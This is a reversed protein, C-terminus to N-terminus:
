FKSQLYKGVLIAAPYIVEEENQAHLKLKEAFEIYHPKNEKECASILENLAKVIMKHEELMQPLDNELSQTIELVTKMEPIIKDRSLDKLLALPPMAYKEEKVFHLHLINAVNKAAEGIKGTEQTAKLLIKHLGDHELKLSEPVPFEM